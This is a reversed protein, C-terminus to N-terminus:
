FIGPDKIDETYISGYRLSCVQENLINPVKQKEVINM